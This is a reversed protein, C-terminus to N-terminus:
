NGTWPAGGQETTALQARGLERGAQDYFVAEMHCDVARRKQEAWYLEWEYTCSLIMEEMEQNEWQEEEAAVHFVMAGDELLQGQASYTKEWRDTLSVGDPQEPRSDYTWGGGANRRYWCSVTLELQASATGEPVDAAAVWLEGQALRSEPVPVLTTGEEVRPWYELSTGGDRWLLVRDQCSAVVWRDYRSEFVGQIDSPGVWNAQEALRFRGRVTPASFGTLGWVLVGLLLLLILNRVLKAGHPLEKKRKM